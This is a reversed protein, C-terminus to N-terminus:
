VINKYNEAAFIRVERDLAYVDEFSHVSVAHFHNMAKEVIAPIGMFGIKKELFLPVAAEGASNYVIQLAGDNKVAEYALALCPFKKTDPPMFHLGSLSYLDLKKLNNPLRENGALAFHIPIRMDPTSLQAITSRDHYEVMSHIISEPHVVVEIKKPDVDFFWRTEMIELGKNMLSASDISIKAGMSWNPHKLAQEPTANKIFEADKHLFPGGSCTLLIREIEKKRNGMLCQYIASIESDLPIVESSSNDMLDRALRGGCVLAEKTALYLKKGNKLCYAFAPLGAMGSVCLVVEDAMSCAEILADKGFGIRINQPKEPLSAIGSLGIFPVHWEEGQLLLASADTNATLACVQYYEKLNRLVDLTQKGISGTSGLIAIKKM